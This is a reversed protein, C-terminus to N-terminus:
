GAMLFRLLPLWLEHAYPYPQGNFRLDVGAAPGLQQVTHLLAAAQDVTFLLYQRAVTPAAREYVAAAALTVAQARLDAPVKDGPPLIMTIRYETPVPRQYLDPEGAAEGCLPCPSSAEAFGCFPCDM